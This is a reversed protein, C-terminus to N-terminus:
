RFYARKATGGDYAGVYVKGKEGGSLVNVPKLSEDGSFLM